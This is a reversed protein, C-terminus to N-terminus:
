SHSSHALHDALHNHRKNVEKQRDIIQRPLGEIDKPDDGFQRQIYVAFPFKRSFHSGKKIIQWAIMEVWNVVKIDRMMIKHQDRLVGELQSKSIDIQSQAAEESQFQLPEGTQPDVQAQQNENMVVWVPSGDPGPVSVPLQTGMKLEVQDSIFDKLVKQAKAKSSGGDMAEGTIENIIFHLKKPTKYYLRVVRIHGKDAEVLEKLLSAGTGSDSIDGFSEKFRSLWEGRAPLNVDPYTAKFTDEDMWWAKGMFRGDQYSPPIAWPDWIFSLSPKREVFVDGWVLDEANDLVHGIEWAGLGTVTGDDFVKDSQPGVGAFEFGAKLVGSAITSLRQDERNRPTTTFDTTSFRQQGALLEVQPRIENFTLAERNQNLVYQRDGQEWQHGNTFNLDQKALQRWEETGDIWSKLYGQVLRLLNNDSKPGQRPDSTDQVRSEDVTAM